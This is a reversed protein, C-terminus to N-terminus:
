FTKLQERKARGSDLLKPVLLVALALNQGQSSGNKLCIEEFRKISNGERDAAASHWSEPVTTAECRFGGSVTQIRDTACGSIRM